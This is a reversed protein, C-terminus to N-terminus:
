WLRACLARSNSAAFPPALGGYGRRIARTKKKRKDSQLVFYMVPSVLIHCRPMFLLM